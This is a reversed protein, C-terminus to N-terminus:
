LATNSRYHRAHLYVGSYIGVSMFTTIVEHVALHQPPLFQAVATYDFTQLLHLCPSASPVFMCSNRLYQKHLLCSVCYSSACRAFNCCGWTFSLRQFFLQCSVGTEVLRALKVTQIDLVVWGYWTSLLSLLGLPYSIPQMEM